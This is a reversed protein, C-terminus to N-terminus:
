RDYHFVWKRILDVLEDNMSVGRERSLFRFRAHLGRPVRVTVVVREGRSKQAVGLSYESVGALAFRFASLLRGSLMYHPLHHGCSLSVGRASAPRSAVGQTAGTAAV